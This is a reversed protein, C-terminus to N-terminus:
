IENEKQIDQARTHRVRNNCGHIIDFQSVFSDTQLIDYENMKERKLYM